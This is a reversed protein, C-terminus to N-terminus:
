VVSSSQTHIIYAFVISNYFAHLFIPVWLSSTKWLAWSFLLGALFVEILGVTSYGAHLLTWGTTAVITAGSFGLRTQSLRNMLYGRFLLEESVPAGIALALFSLLIPSEKIYQRFFGLDQQVETPFLAFTLLSVLIQVTFIFVIMAVIGGRSICPWCLAFTFSVTDPSAFRVLALIMISAAVQFILLSTWVAEPLLQGKEIQEMVEPSFFFPLALMSAAVALVIVSAIILCASVIKWIDTFLNESSPGSSNNLTM